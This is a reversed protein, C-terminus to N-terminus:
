CRGIRTTVLLTTGRAGVSFLSVTSAAPTRGEMVWVVDTATLVIGLPRLDPRIPGRPRGDEEWRLEGKTGLPTAGKSDIRAFGSVAIRLTGPPDTDATDPDVPPSPIRRSTEFYYRPDGRADGVFVWDLFRPVTSTSKAALRLEPERRDALALLRPAVRNWDASGVQIQRPLMVQHPGTATVRWDLAADLPGEAAVCPAAAVLRGNVLRAVTHEIDGSTVGVNGAGPPAPGQARLAGCLAVAVVLVAAPVRVLTVIRRRGGLRGRV